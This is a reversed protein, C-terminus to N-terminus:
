PLPPVRLTVTARRGSVVTGPMVIAPRETWGKAPDTVTVETQGQLDLLEGGATYRAYQHPLAHKQLLKMALLSATPPDHIQAMPFTRSIVGDVVRAGSSGPLLRRRAAHHLASRTALPAVSMSWNLSQPPGEYYPTVVVQQSMFTNSFRIPAYTVTIRNAAEESGETLPGVATVVLRGTGAVGPDAEDTTLHARSRAKSAAWLEERFWVGRPGNVAEVGFPELINTALWDAWTTELVNIVADIKFRNLREAEAEIRTLDYGGQGFEDCGWLLADGVGDIVRGRHAKGGAEPGRIGWWIEHGNLIGMGTMDFMARVRGSADEEHLVTAVTGFTGLTLNHVDVEAAELRHAALLVRQHPASSDVRIAPVAMGARSAPYNLRGPAGIVVPMVEGDRGEDHVWAGMTEEAIVDGPDCIPDTAEVGSQQVSFSLREPDGPDACEVDALIGAIGYADEVYEEGRYARLWARRGTFLTSGVLAALGHIVVSVPVSTADLTVDGISLGGFWEVEGGALRSTYAGSEVAYRHTGSGLDFELLWVIDSRGPTTM